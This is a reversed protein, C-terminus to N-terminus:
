AWIAAGPHFAGVNDSTMTMAEQDQWGITEYDSKCPGEEVMTRLISPYEKYKETAPYFEVKGNEFSKASGSDCRQCDRFVASDWCIRVGSGTPLEDRRATETPM